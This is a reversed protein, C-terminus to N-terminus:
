IDEELKRRRPPLFLYFTFLLIQLVLWSFWLLFIATTLNFELYYIM